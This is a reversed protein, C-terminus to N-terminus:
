ARPKATRSTDRPCADLAALRIIDTHPLVCPPAYPPLACIVKRGAALAIVLGTSNLGAVYRAGRLAGAMDPSRDLRLGPHRALVGDYAGPPDSPHGRIRIPASAPVGARARRALFFELARIEGRVGRGWEGRAPEMLFLADGEHPPQGAAKAQQALYLNRHREVPLRAFAQRAIREAERDGVWLRDPLQVFGAREFRMPYNVWHDIVAISQTGTRAAAIRARHEFDSAWGTGSVLCAAGGLAEPDDILPTDTGFRQEWIARGPGAALVRDPRVRAAAAWAAIMNAAGADHIAIALPRALADFASGNAPLTEGMALARTISSM